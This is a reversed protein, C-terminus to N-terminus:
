ERSAIGLCLIKCNRNQFERQLKTVMGMETTHIPDFSNPHSFIM